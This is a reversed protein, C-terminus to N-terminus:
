PSAGHGEGSRALSPWLQVLTVGRPTIRYRYSMGGNRAQVLREAYGLRYLKVLSRARGIVLPSFWNDPALSLEALVLYERENLAM